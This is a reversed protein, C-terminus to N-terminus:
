ILNTQLQTFAKRLLLMKFNECGHCSPFDMCQVVTPVGNSATIVITKFYYVVLLSM